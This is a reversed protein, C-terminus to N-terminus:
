QLFRAFVPTFEHHRALRVSAPPHQRGRIFAVQTLFVRTGLAKRRDDTFLRVVRTLLVVDGGCILQAAIRFRAGLTARAYRFDVSAILHPTHFTLRRETPVAPGDLRTVDM